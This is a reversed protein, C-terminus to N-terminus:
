GWWIPTAFIVIDASRLKQAIEPWEDSDNEKFQLGVPINKDALQIIESTLSSELHKMEDIVLQAVEKTNSIAEDTHKLSANLVLVRLANPEAKCSPMDCSFTPKPKYM